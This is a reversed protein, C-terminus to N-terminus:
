YKVDPSPRAIVVESPLVMIKIECNHWYRIVSSALHQRLLQIGPAAMSEYVIRGEDYQYHAAVSIGQDSLIEQFAETICWDLIPYFSSDRLTFAEKMESWNHRLLPEFYNARVIHMLAGNRKPPGDDLQAPEVPHLNTRELM